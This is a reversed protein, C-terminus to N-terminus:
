VVAKQNTRSLKRTLKWEAVKSKIVTETEM